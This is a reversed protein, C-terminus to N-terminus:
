SIFNAPRDGSHVAIVGKGLRISERIEWDVWQSSATRESVYVVTVSSREIGDRIGNQIYTARESDFPERLSWDNFEIASNENKAQARLLNVENLDESVFSIFVNRITSTEGEHLRQRALRELYSLDFKTTDLHEIFSGLRRAEGVIHEVGRLITYFSVM